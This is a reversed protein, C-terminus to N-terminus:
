RTQIIFRLETITWAGFTKGVRREIKKYGSLDLFTSVKEWKVFEDFNYCFSAIKSGGISKSMSSM